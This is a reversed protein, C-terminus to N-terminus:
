TNEMIKTLISIAPRQEVGFKPKTLALTARRDELVGYYAGGYRLPSPSFRNSTNINEQTQAMMSCSQTVPVWKLDDVVCVCSVESGVGGCSPPSGM